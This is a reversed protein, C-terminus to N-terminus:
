YTIVIKIDCVVLPILHLEGLLGGGLMELFELRHVDLHFSQSDIQFSLGKGQDGDLIGQFEQFGHVFLVIDEVVNGKAFEIGDEGTVVADATAHGKRRIDTDELM